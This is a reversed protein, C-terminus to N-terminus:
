GESSESQDTTQFGTHTLGEDFEASMLLKQKLIHDELKDTLGMLEAIRRKKNYVSHVDNYGMCAMVVTTPLGCWCLCLFHADNEDLKPCDKLTRTIINDWCSDVYTQLGSWFSLNPRNMSYSQEFLAYFKKPSHTFLTYHKEVLNAFSDIQHRITQKLSENMAQNNALQTTLSSRDQQLREIVDESDELQRQRRSLRRKAVLGVIALASLALAAGLLAIQWRFKYKLASYKLAENDYKAEVDRLRHQMENNAISDSLQDCREYHRQYQVIDGRCRAIEALCRDYFVQQGDSLPESNIQSLYYTASDPKNQKALTFAAIMLFHNRDEVSDGLCSLAIGKAQEIDHANNNFMKLDAIFRLNIRETEQQHLQRSLSLARELHHLASDRQLGIYSSGLANECTMMYFSDPIQSFYRLSEKFMKIHSSDAVLHDHYLYGIRLRIYGQNFIDNPAAKAQAKKYHWMAAENDGLEEMVAGKYIYCRTLKEVEADHHQYYDLALNIASDSTATVYCRYRAQTLLLAHYARDGAAHLGSPDIANLLMLASDPDSQLVSDAVTLRADYHHHNGCSMLLQPLLCLLSLSIFIHIRKMIVCFYHFFWSFVFWFLGGFLWTVHVNCKLM